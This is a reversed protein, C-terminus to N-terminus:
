EKRIAAAITNATRARIAWLNLQNNKIQEAVNSKIRYEAAKAEAIKAARERENRLAALVDDILRSDAQAHGVRAAQKIAIREAIQTLTPETTTVDSM